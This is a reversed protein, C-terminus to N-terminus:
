KKKKVIIFAFLLFSLSIITIINTFGPMGSTPVGTVEDRYYEVLSIIIMAHGTFQVPNEVTQILDFSPIPIVLTNGDITITDENSVDAVIGGGGNTLYTAVQNLGLGLNAVTFNDIIPNDGWIIYIYYDYNLDERPTDQFTAIINTDKVKISVFDIEDRYDGSGQLAANKYYQVDDTTDELIIAAQVNITPLLLVGM